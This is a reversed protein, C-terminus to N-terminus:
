CVLLGARKGASSASEEFVAADLEEGIRLVGCAKAFRGAAVFRKVAIQFGMEASRLRAVVERQEAVDLHVVLVFCRQLGHAMGHAVLLVDGGAQAKTRAKQM